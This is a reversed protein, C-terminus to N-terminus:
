KTLVKARLSCSSSTQNLHSCAQGGGSAPTTITFTKTCNSDCTSWSGVCDVVPVICGTHDSNNTKEDKKYFGNKERFISFGDIDVTDTHISKLKNNTSAFNVFPTSAQFAFLLHFNLLM